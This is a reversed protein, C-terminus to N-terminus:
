RIVWYKQSLRVKSCNKSNKLIVWIEFNKKKIKWCNYNNSYTSQGLFIEHVGRHDADAAIRLKRKDTNGGGKLIFFKAFIQTSLDITRGFMEISVM